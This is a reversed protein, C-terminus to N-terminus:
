AMHMLEIFTVRLTREYKVYFAIVAVLLMRPNTCEGHHAVQCVRNVPRLRNMEPNQSRRPARKHQM